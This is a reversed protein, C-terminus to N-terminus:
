IREVHIQNKPVGLQRLNRVVGSVLRDSGAIYVDRARIDPVASALHAACLPQRGAPFRNPSGVIINMKAKRFQGIQKLEDVLLVDSRRGERYLLTVNGPVSEFLARIPIIGEGGAILLSRKKSGLDASLGVPAKATVKAGKPILRLESSARDDVLFMVRFTGDRPVCSLYGVSSGLSKTGEAFHWEALQGPAIQLEELQEGAIHIAVLGPRLLEVADVQMKCRKFVGLAALKHRGFYAAVSIFTLLTLLGPQFVLALADAVGGVAFTFGAVGVVGAVTVTKVTTDSIVPAESDGSQLKGLLRSITETNSSAQRTADQEQRERAERRLEREARMAVPVTSARTAEVVSKPPWETTQELDATSLRESM